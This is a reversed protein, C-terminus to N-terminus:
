STLWLFHTGKYTRMNGDSKIVRLFEDCNGPQTLTKLLQPSFESLLTNNVSLSKCYFMDDSYLAHVSSDTGSCLWHLALHIRNSHLKSVDEVWGALSYYGLLHGFTVSSLNKHLSWWLNNDVTVDTKSDIMRGLVFHPKSNWAELCIKSKRTVM